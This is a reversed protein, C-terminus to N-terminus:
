DVLEIGLGDLLSLAEIRSFRARRVTNNNVDIRYDTADSFDVGTLDTNVFFAGTFETGRFSSNSFDGGRFDVDHATCSELMWDQLALGHFSGDSVISHYFSVPASLALTPWSVRTWDVGILKSERFTVCSLKSYGLDAVSLNCGIFECDVFSCRNFVSQSFDCREFTCGDFTVSSIDTGSVNLGEFTESYYESKDELRM